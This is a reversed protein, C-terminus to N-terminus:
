RVPLEQRIRIENSSIENSRNKLVIVLIQSIRNKALAVKELDWFYCLALVRQIYTQKNILASIMWFSKQSKFNTTQNWTGCKRSLKIKAPIIYNPVKNIQSM